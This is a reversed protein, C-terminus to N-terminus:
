VTKEVIFWQLIYLFFNLFQFYFVLKEECATILAVMVQFTEVDRIVLRFEVVSALYKGDPSFECIQSSQRFLESFNM